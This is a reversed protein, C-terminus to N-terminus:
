DVIRPVVLEYVLTDDAMRMHTLQFRLEQVQRAFAEDMSDVYGGFYIEWARERQRSHPVPLYLSPPAFGSAGTQVSVPMGDFQHFEQMLHGPVKLEGNM